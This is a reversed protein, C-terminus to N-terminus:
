LAQQKRIKNERQARKQLNQLIKEHRQKEETTENEKNYIDYEKKQSDEQVKKKPSISKKADVSRKDYFQSLRNYEDMIQSINIQKNLSQLSQSRNTPVFESVQNVFQRYKSVNLDEEDKKLFSIYSPSQDFTKNQHRESNFNSNKMVESKQERNSKLSSDIITKTKQSTSNDKYYNQYNIAAVRQTKRLVSLNREVENKEDELILVQKDLM